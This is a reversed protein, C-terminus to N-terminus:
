VTSGRCPNTLSMKSNSLQTPYAALGSIARENGGHAHRNAHMLVLGPLFTTGGPRDFLLDATALPQDYLNPVPWLLALIRPSGPVMSKTRIKMITNGQSDTTM